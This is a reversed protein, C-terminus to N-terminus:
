YNVPCYYMFLGDDLVTQETQSVSCIFFSLTTQQLIQDPYYRSDFLKDLSLEPFTKKIESYLVSVTGM